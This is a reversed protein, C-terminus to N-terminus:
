LQKGAIESFAAKAAAITRDVEEWGHAASMFGAEFQSPALYIGQRLMSRFFRGFVETDSSAASEWGTVKEPTFFTCFLSGVHTVYAPIGAAAAETKMSDALCSTKLELDQYIGRRKDLIELTALGATMALPNGSLTGAQYVPGAPAVLSMIERRGGYAGVPLGGGIIKGLTTLDPRVKYIVQAGGYALRFGTIVEDFILLAGYQTCLVRLGELYGPEPPIVGMNGAVPEVIVAAVDEGFEHFAQDVANLDNYPLTITDKAANPTVGPSDPVGMTAAGSGAKILLGDSHGHYCGIFKFIKNRGTFGRALRLASMVAETGSSVMRVMDMSPFADCIKKALRTELETPAGYSTGRGLAEKIAEMVEPHAHGLIMPGWSGVYDLYSNGDVDYLYAGQAHDIFVPQGGVARFARVPSNVGGPIYQKAEAFLAASRKHDM